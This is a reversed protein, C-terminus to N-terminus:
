QKRKLSKKQLFPAIIEKIENCNPRDQPNRSECKDILNIICKPPLNCIELMKTDFDFIGRDNFEQERKDLEKQFNDISKLNSYCLQRAIQSVSYIDYKESFYLEPPRCDPHGIKAYTPHDNLFFACGFDAIAIHTLSQDFTLINKLHLDGHIIGKQQLCELGNVIQSFIHIAQAFLLTKNRFCCDDLNKLYWQSTGIFEIYTYDNSFCVLKPLMLNEHHELESNFILFEVDVQDIPEKQPWCCRQKIVFNENNYIHLTIDGIEPGCDWCRLSKKRHGIDDYTVVKCGTVFELLLNICKKPFGQQHFLSCWHM